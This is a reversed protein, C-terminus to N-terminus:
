LTRVEATGQSRIIPSSFDNFLDGAEDVGGLSIHMGLSAHKSKQNINELKM